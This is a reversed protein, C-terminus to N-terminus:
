VMAAQVGVGVAVSNVVIVVFVIEVDKENLVDVSAFENVVKDTVSHRSVVVMAPPVQLEVVTVVETDVM